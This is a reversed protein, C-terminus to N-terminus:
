SKFEKNELSIQGTNSNIDVKSIQCILSTTKILIMQAICMESQKAPFDDYDKRSFFLALPNSCKWHLDLFLITYSLLLFQCSCKLYASIGKQPM